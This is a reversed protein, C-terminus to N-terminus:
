FTERRKELFFLEKEESTMKIASAARIYENMDCLPWDTGYLMRQKLNDVIKNLREIYAFFSGKEEKSFSGGFDTFFGSVDVYVNKNKYVVAACDDAWPNGMHAIIIKLGPFRTATEDIALPNSYRILGKNEPDWLLGTHFIVPINFRLSLEYIATLREDSAYYHEYGLFLKIGKIKDNKLHAKLENVRKKSVNFPSAAAVAFLNKHPKIMEILEETSPMTKSFSEGAIVLAYDTSSKKMSELLKEPTADNKGLHVHSDIIM